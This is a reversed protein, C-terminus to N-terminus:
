ATALEVLFLFFLGSRQLWNPQITEKEILTSNVLHTTM